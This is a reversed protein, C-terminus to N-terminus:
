GAKSDSVRSNFAIVTAAGGRGLQRLVPNILADAVTSRQFRINLRAPAVAAYGASKLMRALTKENMFTIHTRKQAERWNSRTLLANLGTPNPTGVVFWGSPKLCSRIKAFTEWPARLHEAVDLSIAGDFKEQLAVQAVDEFVEFGAAALRDRGYPEVGVAECGAGRLANMLAGRGAGYDLIRPKSTNSRPALKFIESVYQAALTDEMSGTEATNEEPAEWAQEYLASLDAESPFPNRIVLGCNRCRDFSAARWHAGLPNQCFPCSALRQM